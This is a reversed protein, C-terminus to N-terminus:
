KPSLQHPLGIKLCMVEVALAILTFDDVDFHFLTTKFSLPIANAPM